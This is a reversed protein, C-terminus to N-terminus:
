LVNFMNLPQVVFREVVYVGNGEICKDRKCFVDIYILPLKYITCSCCDCRYNKIWLFQKFFIDMEVCIYKHCINNYFMM